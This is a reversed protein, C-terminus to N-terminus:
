RLRARLSVRYSASTLTSLGVGQVLLRPDAFLTIRALGAFPIGQPEAVLKGEYGRVRARLSVGVGFLGGSARVEVAGRASALPQVSLGAPLAGQLDAESMRATGSLAPGRKDLSAHSLRLPGVQVSQASMQMRAVDRSEWLLDATQALSLRLSRAHVVVSDAHGWLLEIAPFAKVSVSAVSGYRAVRDRVRQAAIAPLLLQALALFLILLLLPGSLALAIRRRGWRARRPTRDGLLAPAADGGDM